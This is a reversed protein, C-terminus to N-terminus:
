VAFEFGSYKCEFLMVIFGSVKRADLTDSLVSSLIYDSLWEFYFAPFPWSNCFAYM